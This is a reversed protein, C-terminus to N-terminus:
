EFFEDTGLTPILQSALKSIKGSRNIDIWDDISGSYSWREAVYARKDRDVLIFRMVPTFQRTRDFQAKLQEVAGPRLPISKGFLALIQDVDPGVAEYIIIQTNKVAVRYNSGAPHRKLAEEVLAVEDTPILQPRVKVLSIVGNVSERIEYGAPIKEPKNGKPERAFYYRVKGTKTTGQCLYLTSGKRNTYSIPM